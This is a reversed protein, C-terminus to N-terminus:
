MLQTSLNPNCQVPTTSNTVYDYTIRILKKYRIEATRASAFASEAPNTEDVRMEAVFREVLIVECIKNPQTEIQHGCDTHPV